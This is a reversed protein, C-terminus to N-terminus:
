SFDAMIPLDGDLRLIGNNREGVGLADGDRGAVQLWLGRIRSCFKLFPGITVEFAEAAM